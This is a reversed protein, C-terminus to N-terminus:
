HLTRATEYARVAVDPREALADEIRVRLRDGVLRPLEEPAVWRVATTEHSTYPSGAVAACRFVLAVVGREMNKYVGTLRGRDVRYGSEERIERALASLLDEDREVIGGPPEWEDNDARRVLLVRGHEDTVVGAVSVSHRYAHHEAAQGM